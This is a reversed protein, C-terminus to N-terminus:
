SGQPRRLGHVKGRPATDHRPSFSGGLCRRGDGASRMAFFVYSIERTCSRSLAIANVYLNRRCPSTRRSPDHDHGRVEALGARDASAVPGDGPERLSPSSRDSIKQHHPWGGTSSASCGPSLPRRRWARQRCSRQRCRPHGHGHHLTCASGEHVGGRHGVRVIM